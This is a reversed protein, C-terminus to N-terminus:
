KAGRRVYKVVLFIAWITLAAGVITLVATMVNGTLLNKISTAISTAATGAASLDVTTSSEQALSALPFLGVLPALKLIRHMRYGKKKHKHFRRVRASLRDLALQPVSGVLYRIVSMGSPFLPLGSALGVCWVM